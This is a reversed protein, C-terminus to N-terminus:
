RVPPTESQSLREIDETLNGLRERQRTMLWVLGCPLSVALATLGYLVSMAFTGESPIGIISFAAVMVGERVGWGGISIPVTTALVVAPFMALMDVLRVPLDLGVGLVFLVVGLNANGLMAWFIAAVSRGGSSFMRRADDGLNVLAKILRWHRIRDPMKNLLVLLAIGAVSGASLVALALWVWHRVDAPVHPLFWPMVMLSLLPITAVIAVRELMVGNIARGLTQGNRHTLYIRVADGGVASPLTQNFFAGTLFIRAVDRLPMPADIARLTASWRCICIGLQVMMIAIAAILMVPAVGTMRQWAASLDMGSILYAILGASVAVKLGFSLWKNPRIM